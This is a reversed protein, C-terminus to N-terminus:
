PPNKRNKQHTDLALVIYNVINKHRQYPFFVEQLMSFVTYICTNKSPVPWFVRYIRHNAVLPLCCRLYRPKPSGLHLLCSNNVTNKEGLTEFFRGFCLRNSSKTVVLSLFFSCPYSCSCYCSCYYVCCEIKHQLRNAIQGVLGRVREGTHSARGYVCIYIYYMIICICVSFIM